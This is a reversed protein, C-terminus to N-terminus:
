LEIKFDDPDYKKKVKNIIKLDEVAGDTLMDAHILRKIYRSFNKKTEAYRLLDMEIEDTTDFHISKVKHKQGLITM